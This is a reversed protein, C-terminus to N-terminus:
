NLGEQSEFKSDLWVMVDSERLRWARGLKAAKLEGCRVARLLTDRPIGTSRSVQVITVTQM